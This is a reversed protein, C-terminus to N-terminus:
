RWWFEFFKRKQHSKALFLL